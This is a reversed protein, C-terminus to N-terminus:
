SCDHNVSDRRNLKIAVSLWFKRGLDGNAQSFLRGEESGARTANRTWTIKKKQKIKRARKWKSHFSLITRVEIKFQSSQYQYIYNYYALYCFMVSVISDRFKGVELCFSFLNAFNLLQLFQPLIVFKNKFISKNQKRPHLSYIRGNEQTAGNHFM